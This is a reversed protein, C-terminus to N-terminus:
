KEFEVTYGAEKLLAIALAVKDDGKVTKPTAVKEAKPTPLKLTTALVRHLRVGTGDGNDFEVFACKGKLNKFKCPRIGKYSVLLNQGATLKQAEEFKM